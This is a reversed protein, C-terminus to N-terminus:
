AGRDRRRHDKWYAIAADIDRQQRRKDGGTLLLVIEQGANAFYIRYGPGFDMRFEHVGAGVPKVSSFNGLELRELARVVRARVVDELGRYWTQFPSHGLATRYTRIEM